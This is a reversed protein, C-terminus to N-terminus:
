PFGRRLLAADTAPAVPQFGSGKTVHEKPASRLFVADRVAVLKSTRLAGFYSHRRPLALHALAFLLHDQTDMRM